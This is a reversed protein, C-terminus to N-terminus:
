FSFISPAAYCLPFFCFMCSFFLPLSFLFVSPPPSILCSLSPPQELTSKTTLCSSVHFGSHPRLVGPALWQGPHLTFLPYERWCFARPPNEEEWLATVQTEYVSVLLDTGLLSKKREVFQAFLKFNSRPSEPYKGEQISWRFSPGCKQLHFTTHVSMCVHM